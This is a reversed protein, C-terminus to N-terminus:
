TKNTTKKKMNLSVYHRRLEFHRFLFFLDLHRNWGCRVRGSSRPIGPIQRSHKPKKSRCTNCSTTAWTRKGTTVWGRLGPTTSTQDDGFTISDRCGCWTSSKLFGALNTAQHPNKTQSRRCNGGVPSGNRNIRSNRVAWITTLFKWRWRQIWVEGSELLLSVSQAQYLPPNYLLPCSLTLCSVDAVIGM